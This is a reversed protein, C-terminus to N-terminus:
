DGSKVQMNMMPTATFISVASPLVSQFPSGTPNIIVHPGVQPSLQCGESWTFHDNWGSSNGGQSALDQHRRQPLWPDIGQWNGPRRTTSDPFNLVGIVESTPRCIEMQHQQSQTDM